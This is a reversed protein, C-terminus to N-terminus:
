QGAISYAMDVIALDLCTTDDGCVSFEFGGPASRAQGYLARSVCAGWESVGVSKLPDCDGENGSLMALCSIRLTQGLAGAVTAMKDCAASSQNRLAYDFLCDPDDCEELPVAGKAVAVVRQCGGASTTRSCLSADKAAIAVYMNCDAGWEGLPMSAPNFGPAVTQMNDCIATDKTAAAVLYGCLAQWAATEAPSTVPMESCMDVKKSAVAACIQRYREDSVGLCLQLLGSHRTPEDDSSAAGETPTAASVANATPPRASSSRTSAPAQDTAAGKATPLAAVENKTSSGCSLAFLSGLLSFGAL